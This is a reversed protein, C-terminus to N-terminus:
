ITPQANLNRTRRTAYGRERKRFSLQEAQNDVKSPILLCQHHLFM